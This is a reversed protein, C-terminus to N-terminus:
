INSSTVEAEDYLIELQPWAYFFIHIEEIGFSYM